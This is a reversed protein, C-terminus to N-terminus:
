MGERMVGRTFAQWCFRGDEDDTALRIIATGDGLAIAKTIDDCGGIDQGCVWFHPGKGVDEAIIVATKGL